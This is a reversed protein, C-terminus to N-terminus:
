PEVANRRFIVVQYDVDFIKFPHEPHFAALEEFYPSNRLTDLQLRWIPSFHGDWIVIEGARIQEHPEAPNYVGEQGQSKDWPNFGIFYFFGPDYYYIKQHHLQGAVIFASSEAMVKDMGQLKQPFNHLGTKAQLSVMTIGILVVAYAVFPKPYVRMAGSALMNLGKLSLLAGLPVIAVMYRYLGLSSGIGSWWMVGHALFFIFFPLLILLLEDRLAWFGNRLWQYAMTLMGLSILVVSFLGFIKNAREFFYFFNGKGYVDVAGGLYPIESILWFFDGYHFYGVISYIIWGTFFWPIHKYQRAVLFFLMFVPIMFIGETRILPSFSIVVAAWLYRRHVCLCATLILNLGFLVETLGSIVNLTYIPMFFLLFPIALRNSYGLKRAMLWACLCSVLASLLNFIAVGDHGFQAFPSSLLTFFPKAWHHLLFEPYQWAYRSFKYHTLSDAEGIYGESLHLMWAFFIFFLALLVGILTNENFAKTSFRKLM